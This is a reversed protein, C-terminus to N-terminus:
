INELHVGYKSELYKNILASDNEGLIYSRDETSFNYIGFSKIYNRSLSFYSSGYPKSSKTIYFWFLRSSMIKQLLSLEIKDDSIVAIGNYFLLNDDSCLTFHPIHPTIHPFFLKNRYKELSQHRGYAYWNEYKGNGKDRSALIQKKDCLYSYARPFLTKLDKEIILVAKGTLDHNYPFIIKQRLLDIDQVKTMKNPNIIDKCIDKEIPYEINDLLYYYDEDTRIPDFIYIDNKLTAIGNRTTYLKGFPIGTSEIKTLLDIQQLNWGNQYNLSSYLISNFDSIDNLNNEDGMTYWITTSKKKQIICICTYTSKSQFVQRGGFDIIKLDYEADAFYKRLARGNVSKFFTNMTIFGLVGNEKLIELGIEFFPIYLDPHGSLSVKWNTLLKKSENDINRSCVYPPNGLVLNFGKFDSLASSWNFNLANGMFINFNFDRESEGESIALLSLLIKSREVSYEQIDLGYINNRFIEKYTLGTREKLKKSASYLFGACGCAPDCVKLLDSENFKNLCQEIIYDRIPKPTYVAGTVVKEKPSIVFEFIEIIGEIDFVNQIKLINQLSEYDEDLERIFLPKLLKNNTEIIKNSYFYASIILRNIKIPDFSYSKLYTFIEKNM